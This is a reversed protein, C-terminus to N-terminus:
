LDYLIKLNLCFSYNSNNMQVIRGFEDYLRIRLKQIDVPGFYTRPESVIKMDNEMLISFNSAKLSIRAIIDKSMQNNQLISVFHDNSHNNFDDIGLFLYRTTSPEMIAEGTVTNIALYYLNIFGLNWGIKTVVNAYSENGDLGKSFDMIISIVNGAYKGCTKLTVKGTGSGSSNIDLSFLLYSFISDPVILQGCENKPSLINNIADILDNATYNGDPVIVTKDETNYQTDDKFDIYEVRLFFHNNGYFSSIGYFSVPIEFASLQMSVVKNFKMPLQLVFDSSQTKTLNDRFRTDINLCKTITRTDLPNLKGPFYESVNSYIFATDKKQIIEQERHQDENKISPTKKEKGKKCKVFILWDKALRLFEILDRKFAKDIHGSSLLQERIKYEKLEIESETYVHNPKLRFFVEIDKISYNGIDLDLQNSDM